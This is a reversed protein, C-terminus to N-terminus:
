DFATDHYEKPDPLCMARFKQSDFEPYSERFFAAFAERTCIFIQRRIPDSLNDAFGQVINVARMVDPYM